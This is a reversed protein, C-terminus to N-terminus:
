GDKTGLDARDVLWEAFGLETMNTLVESKWAAKTLPLDAEPQPETMVKEIAEAMRALSRAMSSIDHWMRQEGITVM